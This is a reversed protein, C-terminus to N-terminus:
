EEGDFDMSQIDVTDEFGWETARSLFSRFWEELLRNREHLFSRPGVDVLQRYAGREILHSELLIPDTALEIAASIPAPEETSPLLLFNAPSLYLDEASSQPYIRQVAPRATTKEGIIAALDHIEFAESSEFSRPGRDWWSCLMAKSSAHNTRFQSPFDLPYRDENGIVRLLAQVSGQESGRSIRSPLARAMQSFSGRFVVPGAATTRWYWRRLLRLSNASPSPFFAFFRTLVVLLAEYSLFAAHPVSAHQQLFEVARHLAAAGEEYATDRDEGPFDNSSRTGTSGLDNGAFESHIDRTPDSGRRVLISALVTREPIQGFGTAADIKSVIRPITLHDDVANEPGSYLAEFVESRRLRKGYNNMRDFIDTLIDKDDVRVFYAPIKYERLRKAVRTATTLYERDFDPGKAHFWDILSEIDFLTPVRILHPSVVRPSQVFKREQLDYYIEFRSDSAGDRHLVNALSIIRQQGDVVWLGKESRPANITLAGLTLVAKPSQREWLLLNGIPYGRDISDLLRVVDKSGWRFDRQFHPIRIRGAWTDAVLDDLGITGASPQTELSM